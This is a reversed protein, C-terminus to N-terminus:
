FNVKLSAGLDGNSLAPVVDLKLNNHAERGRPADRRPAGLSSPQDLEHMFLGTVFMGFAGAVSIAAATRYRNRAIISANYSVLEGASATPQTAPTPPAAPAPPEAPVQASSPAGTTPVSPLVQARVAGSLTVISAAAILLMRRRGPFRRM